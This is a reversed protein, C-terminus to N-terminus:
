PFVLNTTLLNSYAVPTLQSLAGGTVSWAAYAVWRLGVWYDSMILPTTSAAYSSVAPRLIPFSSTVGQASLRALAVFYDGTEDLLAKSRKETFRAPVANGSGDNVITANYYWRDVNGGYESRAFSSM